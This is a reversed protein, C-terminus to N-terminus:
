WGMQVKSGMAIGWLGSPLDYGFSIYMSLWSKPLYEYEFYPMISMTSIYSTEIGLSIQNKKVKDLTKTQTIVQTKPYVEIYDLSPMYGSVKALYDESKYTKSEIMLPVFVSDCIVTTDHVYVYVVEKVMKEVEIPKEIIITEVLTDIQIMQVEDRFHEDYHFLLGIVIGSVLIIIYPIIKKM